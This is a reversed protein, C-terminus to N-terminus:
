FRFEASVRVDIMQRVQGLRGGSTRKYDVGAGGQVSSSFRYSVNPSISLVASSPDLPTSIQSYQFNLGTTLVSKFSIKKKNLFPLPIGFGQSGEINYKLAVMATWSKDWLEQLNRIRTKKSYNFGLNSSLKNKWELNWNPSVTYANEKGSQNESMRREFGMVFNSQAIFRKLFPYKEMGKWNLTLSPWTSRSSKTRRGSTEDQGLDFRAKAELGINATLGIASRLDVNINDTSRIPSNDEVSDQSSPVGAKDTFGLQYWLNAREYIREYSSRHDFNVNANLPEISGLLRVLKRIPILPDRRRAVTTDAPAASTDVKAAGATDARAASTTDGAARRMGLDKLGGAPSGAPPRVSAPQGPAVGGPGVPGETDDEIEAMIKGV